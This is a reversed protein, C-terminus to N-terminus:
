IKDIKKLLKEIKKIYDAYELELNMKYFTWYNSLACSLMIREDADIKIEM